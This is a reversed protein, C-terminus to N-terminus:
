IDRKPIANPQRHNAAQLGLLVQGPGIANLAPSTTFGDHM